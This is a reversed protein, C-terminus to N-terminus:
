DEGRLDGEFWGGDEDREESWPLRPTLSMWNVVVVSKNETKM